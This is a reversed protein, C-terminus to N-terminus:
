CECVGICIDGNLICNEDKGGVCNNVYRSGSSLQFKWKTVIRGNVDFGGM